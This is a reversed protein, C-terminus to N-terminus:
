NLPRIVILKDKPDVMRLDLETKPSLLSAKVHITINEELISDSDSTEEPGSTEFSTEAGSTVGGSNAWALPISKRFSKSDREAASSVETISALTMAHSEGHPKRDTGKKNELGGSDKKLPCHKVRAATESIPAPPPGNGYIVRLASSGGFSSSLARIRRIQEIQRSVSSQSCNAQHRFWSSSLREKKAAKDGDGHRLVGEFARSKLFGATPSVRKNTIRISEMKRAQNVNYQIFFMCMFCLCLGVLLVIHVASFEIGSKDTSGPGATQQEEDENDGLSCVATAFFALQYVPRLRM